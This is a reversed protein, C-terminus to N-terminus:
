RAFNGPYRMNVRVLRSSAESHVLRDGVTGQGLHQGVQGPPRLLVPHHQGTGPPLLLEQDLLNAPSEEPDSLFPLFSNEINTFLYFDGM